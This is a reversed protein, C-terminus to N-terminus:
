PCGLVGRAGGKVLNRYSAFDVFGDSKNRYFHRKIKLTSVEEAVLNWYPVSYDKDEQGTAFATYLEWALIGFAWVDSAHSYNNELIM